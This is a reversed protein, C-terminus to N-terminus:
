NNIKRQYNPCDLRLESENLPVNRLFCFFSDTEENSKSDRFYGCSFCTKVDGLIKEKRLSEVFNLLFILVTRRTKLPFQQLHITLPGQWDLFNAIQKKGASTIQLAFRRKDVSSKNKEILGKQNLTKIADSVTPPTLNFEKALDSVYSQRNKQSNIYLLFQIQIPSLKEEKAHDWLLTRFAQSLRELAVIIIRNLDQQEVSLDLEPMPKTENEQKIPFSNLFGLLYFCDTKKNIKVSIPVFDRKLSFTPKDYFLFVGSM